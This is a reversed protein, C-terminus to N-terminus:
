SRGPARRACRRRASARRSPTSHEGACPCCTTARPPPVSWLHATPFGIVLAVLNRQRRDPWSIWVGLDSTPRLIEFTPMQTSLCPHREATRETDDTASVLHPAAPLAAPAPQEASLIGSRAGPMSPAAISQPATCTRRSHRHAQAHHRDGAPRHHGGARAFGRRLATVPSPRHRIRFAPVADLKNTGPRAVHRYVNFRSCGSDPPASSSQLVSTAIRM